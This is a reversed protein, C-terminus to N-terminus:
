EKIEEVMKIARAPCEKACMGCGKCYDLNTEYTTGVALRSNTPCVMWCIGCKRCKNKVTVPRQYRWEGTNVIYLEEGIPTIYPVKFKVTM